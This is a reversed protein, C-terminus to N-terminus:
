SDHHCGIWAVSGDGYTEHKWIPVRKKTEDIVYQCVLFAEKRHAAAVGVWVAIEGILIEGVRHMVQLEQVEWRERAEQTIQLLVKEAMPEYCEYMLRLVEKGHHHNRVRGEFCVIGGCAPNDLAQYLTEILIPNRTIM